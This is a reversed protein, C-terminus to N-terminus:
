GDFHHADSNGYTWRFGNARLLKVVPHSSSRWGVKPHSHTAWWTNPVIGTRSHYPNEWTNIDIARGYAHPSRVRPNGVVGRCNFASTNGAAMSDYNDAGGLTSSWGFRDVLYMSRVPFRQAHLATFAKVTKRAVAKHVVLEGRYRYGDYGWYNVKVLRLSSRGVPCGPRWSRGVMSRWVADPISTAVGNGGTGVARAQRPLRIRPRPAKAPYAVPTGPPANDVRHVNSTDSAWWKAARGVVKWQTDYRPTVKLRAAGQADFRLASVRRWPGQEEKRWLDATGAVPRKGPDDLRWRMGLHFSGGDVIRKWGTLTLTSAHVVPKVTVQAASPALPEPADPLGAFLVRVANDAVARRVALRSRAVGDAGTTRQDIRHWTGASRREFVVTAGPVPLSKNADAPDPRTLTATLLAFTVADAQAPAMLTLTTTVPADGSDDAVAPGTLGAVFGTVVLASALLASTVRSSLV